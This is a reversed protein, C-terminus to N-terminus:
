ELIIDPVFKELNGIKKGWVKTEDFFCVGHCVEVRLGGGPLVFYLCLGLM